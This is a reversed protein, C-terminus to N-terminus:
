RASREDTRCSGGACPGPACHHACADHDHQLCWAGSRISRVSDIGVIRGHVRGPQHLHLRVAPVGLEASEADCVRVERVAEHAGGGRQHVGHRDQQAEGVVAAVDHERREHALVRAVDHARVAVAARDRTPFSGGISAKPAAYASQHAARPTSVLKTTKWGSNPLSACAARRPKRRTGRAPVTAHRSSSGSTRARM